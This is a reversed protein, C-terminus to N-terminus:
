AEDEEEGAGRGLRYNFPPCPPIRVRPSTAAVCAKWAHENSWESVQGQLPPFITIRMFIPLENTFVDFLCGIFGIVVLRASFDLATKM